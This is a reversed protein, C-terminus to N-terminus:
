LKGAPITCPLTARRRSSGGEPMVATNMFATVSELHDARGQPGGGGVGTVAGDGGAQMPRSVRDAPPDARGGGARGAQALVGGDQGVPEVREQGRDSRGARQQGVGHVCEAQGHCGGGAPETRM